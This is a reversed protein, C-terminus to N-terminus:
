IEEEETAEMQGAGELIKATVKHDVLDIEIVQHGIKTHMHELAEEYDETCFTCGEKM